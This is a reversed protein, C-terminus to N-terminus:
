SVQAVSALIRRSLTWFWAGPPLGTLPCSLIMGMLGPIRLTFTFCADLVGLFGDFPDDGWESSQNCASSGSKVTKNNLSIHALNFFM